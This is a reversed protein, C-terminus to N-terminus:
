YRSLGISLWRNNPFKRNATSSGSIKSYMSCAACVKQSARRIGVAAVASNPTSQRSSSRRRLKRWNGKQDFIYGIGFIRAFELCAEHQPHKRSVRVRVEDIMPDIGGQHLDICYDAQRILGNFLQYAIRESSTGDSKGPFCRNMKMQDVPSHAQRAHFAHFNVIPVAIIRGNLNDPSIKRLVKHIVAIGNLENGDSISQLYLTQKGQTGNILVVPLRVPTGDPMSGVTLYDEVREGPKAAISGVTLRNNNIWM